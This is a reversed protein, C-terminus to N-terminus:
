AHFLGGCVLCHLAQDWDDFVKVPEWEHCPSQVVVMDDPEHLALPPKPDEGRKFKFSILSSSPQRRTMDEFADGIERSALRMLLQQAHDL